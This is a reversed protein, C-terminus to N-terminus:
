DPNLTQIWVTHEFQRAVLQQNEKSKTSETQVRQNDRVSEKQQFLIFSRLLDEKRDVLKPDERSSLREEWSVEKSEFPFAVFSHERQHSKHAFVCALM